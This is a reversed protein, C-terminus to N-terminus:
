ALVWDTALLPAQSTFMMQSEDENLIMKRTPHLYIHEFDRWMQRRVKQGARMQALAWGFDGGTSDLAVGAAPAHGRARREPM